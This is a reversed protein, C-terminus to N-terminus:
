SNLGPDPWLPEAFQSLQPWTNGTSNCTLENEETVPEGSHRSLLDAWQSKVPDLTRVRKPTVQWKCKQCFSRPRKRAAATVRALVTM